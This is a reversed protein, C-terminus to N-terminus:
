KQVFGISGSGEVFPKLERLIKPGIGPVQLLDNVESFNGHSERYQCIARARGPGIGPLAALDDPSATNLSIKQGLVLRAAGGDPIIKPQHGLEPPLKKDRHYGHSLCTLSLALGALFLIQKM